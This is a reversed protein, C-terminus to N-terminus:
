GYRHSLGLMTIAVEKHIQHNAHSEYPNFTAISASVVGRLLSVTFRLRNSLKRWSLFPMQFRSRARLSSDREVM